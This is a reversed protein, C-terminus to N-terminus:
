KVTIKIQVVTENGSRDKVRYTLPYVGERKTDVRGTIKIQNTLIGDVEDSATVGTSPNFLSNRKITKSVVGKLVPPVKDQITVKRIVTRQNGAADRVSYTVPYVGVKGTNVTGSIKLQETVDGDVNDLATVSQKPRFRENVSLVIDKAGEIMPRTMDKVTILRKVESQNGSQDSALYTLSYRGPRNLDLAGKVNLLDTVNGDTEDIVRVGKYVDFSQSAAITLGTAGQIHPAIVDEVTWEDAYRLEGKSDKVEFSIQRQGHLVVSTLSFKGTADATARITEKGITVAVQMRPETKGTITTTKNTIQDVDFHFPPKSKEVIVEHGKSQNGSTDKLYVMLKTGAIQKPLDIYYMDSYRSPGTHRMAIREQGRYVEIITDNGEAGVPLMTQNDPLMGVHSMIPATVDNLHVTKVVSTRRNDGFTQVRIAKSDDPYDFAVSFHGDADAEGSGLGGEGYIVNRGDTIEVRAFPETTGELRLVNDDITAPVDLRVATAEQVELHKPTAQWNEYSAEITLETGVEQEVIPLEFTGTNSVTVSGLLAQNQYVKLEMGPVGTGTLTKDSKSVPNIDYYYYEQEYVESRLGFADIAVYRLQTTRDLPIPYREYYKSSDETPESGDMTYYITAEKTAELKVEKEGSYLGTPMSAEVEPNSQDMIGLRQRSQQGFIDTLIIEIGKKGVIDYNQVSFTGDPQLALPKGDITAQLVPLTAGTFSVTGDVPILPKGYIQLPMRPIITTTEIDFEVQDGKMFYATGQERQVATEERVIRKARIMDEVKVNGKSELTGYVYVSGTTRVNKLTVHADPGIYLNETITQNELVTDKLLFLGKIPTIEGQGQVTAAQVNLPTMLVSSPPVILSAILGTALVHKWSLKRM